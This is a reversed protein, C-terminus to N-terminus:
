IFLTAFTAVTLVLAIKFKLKSKAIYYPSLCIMRLFYLAACVFSMSQVSLVAFPLSAVASSLKIIASLCLNAILAIPEAITTSIFGVMLAIFACVVSASAVPIAVMNMIFGYLPLEHFYGITAPISGTTASLSLALQKYLWPETFYSLISCYAKHTLIIGLVASFSLVFGAAFLEFPNIALITIFALACNTLSDSRRAFLGATISVVTMLSARMLSAPFATIACYLILFAMIACARVYKNTRKFLYGVVGALVTVHLGSLALLHAIGTDRLDGLTDEPIESTDGLLIGSITPASDGFLFDIKNSLTNRIKAFLGHATSDSGVQTVDSTAKAVFTYHKSLLYFKYTHNSMKSTQELSASLKIVDDIHANHKANKILIRGEIPANNITANSLVLSGNITKYVTGQLIPNKDTIDTYVTPVFASVRLMGFLLCVSLLVIYTKKLLHASLAIVASVIALTIRFAPPASIVFIGFGFGIACLVIPRYNFAGYSKVEKIKGNNM